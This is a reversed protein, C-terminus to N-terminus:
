LTVYSSTRSQKTIKCSSLYTLIQEWQKMFNSGVKEESEPQLDKGSTPKKNTEAKDSSKKEAANSVDAEATEEDM